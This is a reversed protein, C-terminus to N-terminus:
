KESNLEQCLLLARSSLAQAQQLDQDRVAADTQELFGQIREVTGKEADSLQRNKAKALIDLAQRQRASIENQMRRREAASEVPRIRRRTASTNPPQPLPGAPVPPPQVTAQRPEPKPAAPRPKASQNPQEPTRPSTTQAAALAEAQIPQPQPLVVETQPVSIPENSARENTAPPPPAPKAVASAAPAAHPRLRACGTAALMGLWCTALVIVTAESKM